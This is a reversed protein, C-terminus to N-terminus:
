EACYIQMIVAEVVEEASNDVAQESAESITNNIQNIKTMGTEDAFLEGGCIARELENAEELKSLVAVQVEFIKEAQARRELALYDELSTEAPDDIQQALSFSAGIAMVFCIGLKITSSKARLKKCVLKNM